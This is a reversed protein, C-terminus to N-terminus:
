PGLVTVAAVARARLAIPSPNSITVDLVDGGGSSLAVTVGDLLPDDATTTNYGSLMLSVVGLYKKVKYGLQVSVSLGGASMAIVTLYINAIVNGVPLTVIGSLVDTEAPINVPDYVSRYDDTDAVIQGVNVLSAGGMNIMGDAVDFTLATSSITNSRLTIGGITAHDLIQNRPTFLIGDIMATDCVVGRINIVDISGDSARIFIPRLAEEQTLSM